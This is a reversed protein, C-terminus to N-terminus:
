TKCTPPKFSKLDPQRECTDMRQPDREATGGQIKEEIGCSDDNPINGDYRIFVKTCNLRWLETRM